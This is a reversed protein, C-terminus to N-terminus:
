IAYRPRCRLDLAGADLTDSFRAFSTEPWTYIEEDRSQRLCASPMRGRRSALIAKAFRQNHVNAAESSQKKQNTM